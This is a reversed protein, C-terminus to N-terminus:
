RTGKAKKLKRQISALKNTRLRLKRKATKLQNLYMFDEETSKNEPDCVLWHQQISLNLLKKLEEGDTLAAKFASVMFDIDQNNLSDAAKPVAKTKFAVPEVLLVADQGKGTMTKECKSWVVHALNQEDENLGLRNVLMDFESQMQM